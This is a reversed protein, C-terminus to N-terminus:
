FQPVMPLPQCDRPLSLLVLHALWIVRLVGAGALLQGAEDGVLFVQQQVQEDGELESHLEDDILAGHQVAVGLLGHLMWGNSLALTTEMKVVWDVKRLVLRVELVM